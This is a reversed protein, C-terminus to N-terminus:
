DKRLQEQAKQSANQARDYYPEDPTKSCGGFVFTATLFVSILIFIVKM